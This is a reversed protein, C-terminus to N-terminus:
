HNNETPKKASVNFINPKDYRQSPQAHPTSWNGMSTLHQTKDYRQEQAGPDQLLDHSSVGNADCISLKTTVSVESHMPAIWNSRSTLHQTEDAPKHQTTNLKNSQYEQPSM